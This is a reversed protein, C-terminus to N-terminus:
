SARTSTSIEAMPPRPNRDAFAIVVLRTAPRNGFIYRQALALNEPVFQGLADHLVEIAGKFGLYAPM